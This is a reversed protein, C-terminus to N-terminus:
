KFSYEMIPILVDATNNKPSNVLTSVESAILLSDRCPKLLVMLENPDTVDPNLWAEEDKGELIVPMRTHIKSMFPNAATTVLSFSDVIEGSEKNVWDEWIGALSM